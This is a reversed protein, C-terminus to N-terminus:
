KTKDSIMFSNMMGALICEVHNSAESCGDPMDFTIQITAPSYMYLMKCHLGCLISLCDGNDSLIVKVMTDIAHEGM